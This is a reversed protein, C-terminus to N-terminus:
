EVKPPKTGMWYRALSWLGTFRYSPDLYHQTVYFAFYYFRCFAWVTVALLVGARPTPHELIAADWVALGLVSVVLGEGSDV